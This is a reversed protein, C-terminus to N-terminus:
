HHGGNDGGPTLHVTRILAGNAGNRITLERCGGAENGEVILYLPLRQGLRVGRARFEEGSKGGSVVPWSKFPLPLAPPYWSQIAFGEGQLILDSAPQLNKLSLAVVQRGSYDNIALLGSEGTKKLILSAHRYDPSRFNAFLSGAVLGLGAFLATKLATKLRNRGM